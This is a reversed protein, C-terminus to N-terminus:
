APADEGEPEGSWIAARVAELDRQVEALRAEHADIEQERAARDEASAKREKLAQDLIESIGRELTEGAQAVFDALRDGFGDISADFKPGLAAGAARIVQPAQLKAQAKMEAAAREKLVIALVPAALTLLGGVLANVFLFITTGFAGLALTALDYKFLDVDIAVKTAAGLQAGLTEMVGRVNENTIQIIEEALAELLVAIEDGEAEAWEKFKDKIYDELYRRVDDGTAKEIQAAIGDAFATLFADLDLRAKAKIAATEARIREQQARVTARTGDLRARVRDIRLQLDDLALALSRRKIGLNQALYAATRLGDGVANDLLVRGRDDVLFRGLHATFEPFGSGAAHGRAAQRASLPFVDTEGVLAALHERAYGLCAEAEEPTLLDIKNVVFLLKERSRKLIRQTLFSRESEKLVQTADLLFVVADARPIYGYTIEARQENIDNVGPTDVLTVRDKLIEAPYGVEVVRALSANHGEVTLWDALEAPAVKVRQGNELVAFAWPEASYVIHNLTATTPTIGVPLLEQGLLANVFTTKGHNFEGLVVLHFREDELKPVRTTEIDTQLSRMGLAGAMAALRKLGDLVRVKSDGFRARM